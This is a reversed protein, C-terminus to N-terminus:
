NMRTFEMAERFLQDHSHSSVFKRLNESSDTITVCEVKRSDPPLPKTLEDNSIVTKKYSLDGKLLDSEIADIIPQQELFAMKLNNNELLIINIFIFGIRGNSIKEPLDDFKVNIYLSDNIRTLYFPIKFTEIEGNRRHEVSLAVMNDKSTASIHLYVEDGDKSDYKWVGEIKKNIFSPESLPNISLM